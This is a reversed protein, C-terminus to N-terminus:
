KPMVAHGKCGSLSKNVFIVNVFGFVLIKCFLSDTMDVM